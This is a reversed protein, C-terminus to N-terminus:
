RDVRGEEWQGDADKFSLRAWSNVGGGTEILDTVSDYGSEGVIQQLCHPLRAANDRAASRALWTM